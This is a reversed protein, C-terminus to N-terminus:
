RVKRHRSRAHVGACAGTVARLVHRPAALRVMKWTGDYIHGDAYQLVGQGDKLDNLWEGQYLDGSPFTERGQLLITVINSAVAARLQLSPQRVVGARV